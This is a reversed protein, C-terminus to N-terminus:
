KERVRDYPGDVRHRSCKEIIRIRLKALSQDPYEEALQVAARGVKLERAIAAKSKGARERLTKALAALESESYLEKAM